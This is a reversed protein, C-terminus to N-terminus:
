RVDHGKRLIMDLDSNLRLQKAALDLDIEQRSLAKLFQHYSQTHDDTSEAPMLHTGHIVYPPIYTMQCLKATRELPLILDPLTAQNFGEKSYAAEPGGTTITCFFLKDRLAHGEHGYAWGHTLVLDQWEKLIAPTSYWYLPFHMIIIDHEKLLEQEAAVDIYMDPYVEYLDHFTVNEIKSLGSILHKNVRSRQLAPHAFLVLIKKSTKMM